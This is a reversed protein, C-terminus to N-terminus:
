APAGTGALAHELLPELVRSHDFHEAAHERAARGQRVPDALVAEVAAAATDQSDFALLGEGAPLGATWGTDQAVVARGSALYCASRESFWGSASVVYGHKAVTFEGASGTLFRQYSWPDRAADDPDVLRWGRERLLAAPTGRGSALTFVEGVQGPLDLYPEFSEGKMGYRVGDHERGDYSEWQMVTTLPAGHPPASATWADIVIPQRTAVWPLGDDPVGCGSEGIREAFTAFATHQRAAVLDEPKTLHRIQTFAPDTDLLLRHPVDVLWPRLPNVGSVNVILDASACLGMARGAAPGLWGGAHADWYAFRDGFGLRGLAEGAFQLGLTPDATMLHTRPNYCSEYDDSDELFWVDHGLRALGLVYHLHHWAMGGMPGRVLYGLVLIRLAGSVVV